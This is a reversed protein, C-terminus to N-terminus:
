CVRAEPSAPSPLSDLFRRLDSATRLHIFRRGTAAALIGPGIAAGFRRRLPAGDFALRGEFGFRQAAIVTIRYRAPQM